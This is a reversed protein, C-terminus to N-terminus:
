ERMLIPLFLRARGAGTVTPTVVVTYVGRRMANDRNRVELFYTGSRPAVFSLQIGGGMGSNLIGAGKSLSALPCHGPYLAFTLDLTSSPAVLGDIVYTTGAITELRLWDSTDTAPLTHFQPIGDPTIPQAQACLDDPEFADPQANNFGDIQYMPLGYLTLENLVKTDYVTPAPTAAHYSRKAGLLAQGITTTTSLTLQQALNVGMQESLGVGNHLGWSYGTNAIYVAGQGVWAQPWDVAQPTESPVTLGGHPSGNYVLRGDRPLPWGAVQDVRLPDGWPSGILWHNAHTYFFILNPANNRLKSELNSSHWADGILECDPKQPLLPTFISCVQQAVDQVFDYGAILSGTAQVRGNRKLFQAIATAMEAPTEVLRGVALTPLYSTIVATATMQPAGYFDDSLFFNAALAAGVTTSLPVNLYTKESSAPTQDYIRRYPIMRDDGILLVYALDPNSQVEEQIVGHIVDAVTNAQTVSLPNSQWQEYAVAVTPLTDLRVLLGGVAPHAALQTIQALLTNTATAGFRATLQVENTLILTRIAPTQATAKEQQLMLLLAVFLTAILAPLSSYRLSKM